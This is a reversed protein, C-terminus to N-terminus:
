RSGDMDDTMVKALTEGWWKPRTRRLEILLLEALELPLTQWPYKTGYRVRTEAESGDM